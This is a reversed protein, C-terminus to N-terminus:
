AHTHPVHKQTYTQTCLCSNLDKRNCFSDSSGLAPTGPMQSWSICIRVTPTLSQGVMPGVCARFWQVMEGAEWIRSSDKQAPIHINMSKGLEQSTEWSFLLFFCLYLSWGGDHEAKEEQERKGKPSRCCFDLQAWRQLQPSSVKGFILQIGMGCHWAAPISHCLLLAPPSHLNLPTAFLFLSVPDM